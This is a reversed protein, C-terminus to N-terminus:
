LYKRISENYFLCKQCSVTVTLPIRALFYTDRFVNKISVFVKNPRSALTLNIPPTDNCDLCTPALLVSLSDLPSFRRCRTLSKSGHLARSAMERTLTFAERTKLSLHSSFRLSPFHVRRPRLYLFFPLFSVRRTRLKLGPM